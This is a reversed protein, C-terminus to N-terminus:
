TRDTRPQPVPPLEGTDTLEQAIDIVRRNTRSSVEVLLTFAHEATLKHREMLIGKAQGILDRNGVATRLHEEHRAGALAVAAHSAFLLGVYESERTFAGPSRAYLNLAGLHDSTVLLQFSLMSGVGRRSAERAFWPWRAETTMDDVRVVHHDWVADMCPGEGPSGQLEDLERPLDSTWARPEVHRRARVYIVGCDEAGQVFLVAAMSIAQLTAEVDGHREQLSRAVASMVEGLGATGVADAARRRDHLGGVQREAM